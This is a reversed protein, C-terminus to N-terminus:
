KVYTSAATQEAECRPRKVGVSLARRYGDLLFSSPDWLRDPCPPTSFFRKGSGPISGSGNIVYGTV